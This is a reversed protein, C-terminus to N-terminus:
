DPYKKNTKKTIFAQKKTSLTFLIAGVFQHEISIVKQSKPNYQYLEHTEKDHFYVGGKGDSQILFNNIPVDIEQHIIINNM